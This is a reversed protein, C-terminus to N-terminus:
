NKYQSYWKVGIRLKHLEEKKKQLMKQLRKDEKDWKLTRWAVLGLMGLPLLTALIIKIM